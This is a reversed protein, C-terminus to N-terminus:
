TLKQVTRCIGSELGILKDAVPLEYLVTSAGTYPDAKGNENLQIVPNFRGVYKHILSAIDLLTMKKDYVLNIDHPANNFKIIYDMVTFIDDLYFFDMERNQHVTVALGRKLNLIGNKIFRAPDEDFNFCGFLRVVWMNDLDEHCRRTILNKSLGYPDVPWCYKATEEFRGHIPYRRDFEAGSSIVIIKTYELESKMACLYLNEFMTMNPVFVDEWTDKDNRDGGKSAAHIIVDPKSKILYEETREFNLLDMETRSPADVTYGANVFLPVLNRAIYGQGGNILVKM